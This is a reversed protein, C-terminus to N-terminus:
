IFNVYSMILIITFNNNTDGILNSSGVESSNDNSLMSTPNKTSTVSIQINAQTTPAISPYKTPTVSKQVTPYLTPVISPMIFPSETPFAGLCYLIFFM